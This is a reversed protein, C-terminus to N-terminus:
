RFYALYGLIIVALIVLIILPLYGGVTTFLGLVTTAFNYAASNATQQSQVSSVISVAIVGIIAIVALTKMLGSVDDLAARKTKVFSALKNFM